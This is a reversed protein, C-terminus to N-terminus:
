DMNCMVLARAYDIGTEEAFAAAMDGPRNTAPAPEIRTITLRFTGSETHVVPNHPDSVDVFYADHFTPEGEREDDLNQWDIAEIARDVIFDAVAMGVDATTLERTM